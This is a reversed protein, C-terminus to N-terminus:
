SRAAKGQSSAAPRCLSPCPSEMRRAAMAPVRYGVHSFLPLYVSIRGHKEYSWDLLGTGMDIRIERQTVGLARAAEAITFDVQPKPQVYERLKLVNDRHFEEISGLARGRNRIRAKPGTIPDRLWGQIFRELEAAPVGILDAVGIINLWTGSMAKFHRGTLKQGAEWKIPSPPTYPTRAAARVVKRLDSSLPGTCPRTPKKRSRVSELMPMTDNEPNPNRYDARDM